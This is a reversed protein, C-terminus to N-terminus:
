YTRQVLMASMWELMARATGPRLTRLARMGAATERVIERRAADLVGSAKYIATVERVMQQEKGPSMPRPPAAMLAKLRRASQGRTRKYAHVLLFTKKRSLIDGGIRKGLEKEQAVVDLLDDQIQFARGIHAGFKRLAATQAPTGNGLVAGLEASAAILEGTKSSIMRFYERPTIRQRREFEMDFAQGVCVEVYADTFIKMARSINRNGSKLLAAYALGLIVDGVLIANNVDWKTHVTPRGRRSPANDMVDDHVLTFNHLMEIATAADLAASLKGGVAECSLLVLMARVRKGPASLVYRTADTLDRPESDHIIAALRKEVQRRLTTRRHEFRATTM